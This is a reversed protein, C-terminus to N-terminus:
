VRWLGEVRGNALLLRCVNFFSATERLVHRMEILAAHRKDLAEKNELMQAVRQEYKETSDDLVDLEHASPAMAFEPEIVERVRIGSVEVQAALFGVTL